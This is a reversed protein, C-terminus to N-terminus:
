KVKNILITNSLINWGKIVIKTNDMNVSPNATEITVHKVEGPLLSFFNDTYFSPRVPKGQEDLLQIQTFFAITTTPNKIDLEIFSSNDKKSVSSKTQLNIKKMLALPEFGATAPGTLTKKGLYADNSRWYFSNAIMKGTEDALTLRIFQVPTVAKDFDLKILNNLVGDEPINELIKSQSSIKKSNLDYV